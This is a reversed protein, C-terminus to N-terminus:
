SFENYSQNCLHVYQLIKSFLMDVLSNFKYPRALKSPGPDPKVRVSLFHVLNILSIKNKM